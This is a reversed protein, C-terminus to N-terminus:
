GYKHVTIIFKSFSSQFKQTLEQIKQERDPTKEEMGILFIIEKSRNM